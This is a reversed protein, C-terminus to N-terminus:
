QCLVQFEKLKNNITEITDTPKFKYVVVGYCTIVITSNSYEVNFSDKHQQIIREKAKLTRENQFSEILQNIKTFM